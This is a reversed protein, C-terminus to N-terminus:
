PELGILLGEEYEGRERLAKEAHRFLETRSPLRSKAPLTATLIGLLLDRSFDVVQLHKVIEDLEDFRGTRMLQDVSEYVVDLAADTKGLTDLHHARSLFTESAVEASRSTKDPM